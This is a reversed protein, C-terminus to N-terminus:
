AQRTRRLRQPVVGPVREIVGQAELDLKVAMTYWGVKLEALVAPPLLTAVIDPLGDLPVGHDDHSVAALIAARMADYKTQAIRPAKKGPEPHKLQIKAETMTM